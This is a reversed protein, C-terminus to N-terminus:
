FDLLSKTNIRNRFFHTQADSLDNYDGHKAVFDGIIRFEEFEPDEPLTDITLVATPLASLVISFNGEIFNDSVRTLELQGDTAFYLYDIGAHGLGRENYNVIVSHEGIAPFTFEPIREIPPLDEPNEVYQRAQRIMELWQENTHLQVVQYSDSQWNNVVPFSFNLTAFNIDDNIGQEAHLYIEHQQLESPDIDLNLEELISPSLFQEGFLGLSTKIEIENIQEHTVQRLMVGNGDLVEYSFRYKPSEPTDPAQPTECSSVTLIFATILTFGALGQILSSESSM